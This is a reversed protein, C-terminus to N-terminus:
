PGILEGVSPSMPTHITRTVIRGTPHSEDLAYKEHAGEFHQHRLELSAFEYLIGFKPEGCVSFLRRARHAGAMEGIAPLRLSEYWDAVAWESEVDKMSFTGFQIAEGFTASDLKEPGITHESEIFLSEFSVPVALPDLVKHRLAARLGDSGLAAKATHLELLVVFQTNRLSPDLELRAVRRGLDAMTKGGGTLRYVALPGFVELAGVNTLLTSATIDQGLRDGFGLWSAYLYKNM